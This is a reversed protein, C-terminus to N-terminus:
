PQTEEPASPSDARNLFEEVDGTRLEVYDDREQDCLRIYMPERDPVGGVMVQYRPDDTPLFWIYLGSGGETRDYPAFDSWTLAEGKEALKRIVPMTLVEVPMNEPETEPVPAAAESSQATFLSTYFEARVILYYGKAMREPEQELTECNYSRIGSGTDFAAACLIRSDGPAVPQRKGPEPCSSSWGQYGGEVPFYTILSGAGEGCDIQAQMGEWNWVGDESRTSLYIRLEGSDAALMVSASRVCVGNGCYEATIKASHVERGLSLTYAFSASDGDHDRETVWLVDRRIPDTLFCVGVAIAALLALVILWLAPKKYSMVRRIREKVGIEGFALPCAAAARRRVSCNLLATSYAQLAERGMNRIVREDCAAEVDRCLLVYALWLLPNFWYLSLLVYGLPKWIQDGRHLHAREHALVAELDSGTLDYPLYVTPRFIGLIFPSEVRESQYVNGELRTAGTLKRRLLLTTVLAYGLMVAAGILWVRSLVFAWIQSPNASAWPQATMSGALVPNVTSDVAPIGSDVAPVAATIIEPPLPKASPLLSLRSEIGFPLILRLAALGWLAVFVWKPARHLLLRLLIIVLVLLAATMSRNVYNLFVAEM